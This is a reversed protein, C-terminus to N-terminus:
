VSYPFRVFRGAQFDRTNRTLLVRKEVQATALLIADPLKLRTARRVQITEEAIEPTLEIQQFNSLLMEARDREGERLGVLVEIRTVVSIARNPHRRVVNLALPLGAILDILINTDVLAPPGM